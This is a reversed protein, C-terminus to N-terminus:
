ALITGFFAACSGASVIIESEPDFDFDNDRKTKELIAERLQLTGPDPTYRTEGSNLSNIAADIAERPADFNPEGVGLNVMGSERALSLIVHITKPPIQDLGRAITTM